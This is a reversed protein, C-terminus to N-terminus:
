RRLVFLAACALALGLLTLTAHTAVPVTQALGFSFGSVVLCAIPAAPPTPLTQVTGPPPVIQVQYPVVAPAVFDVDGNADTTLAQEITGDGLQDLQVLVNAHGSEGADVVGNGNTDNFVHVHITGLCFAHAARPLVIATVLALALTLRRSLM